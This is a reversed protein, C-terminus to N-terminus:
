TEAVPEPSVLSAAAITMPLSRERMGLVRELLTPSGVARMVALPRCADVIEARKGSLELLSAVLEDFRIGVGTCVNVLPEAPRTELDAFGFLVRIVFPLTVFDRITAGNLLDLRGGSRPLAAINAVFEGLPQSPPLEPGAVNFVRCVVADGGSAHAERVAATARLKSAGYDSTPLELTQEDLMLHDPQPGYEAASGVHVLRLPDRDIADLLRQVLRVNADDLTARGGTAAGAVNIIARAGTRRAIRGVDDIDERRVPLARRNARTAAALLARGLYGGSGVVLVPSM